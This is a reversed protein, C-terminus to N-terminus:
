SGICAEIKHHLELFNLDLRQNGTDKIPNLPGSFPNPINASQAAQTSIHKLYMVM